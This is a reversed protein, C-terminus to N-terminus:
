KLTCYVDVQTIEKSKHLELNFNTCYLQANVTSFNFSLFLNKRDKHTFLFEDVFIDIVKKVRAKKGRGSIKVSFIHM